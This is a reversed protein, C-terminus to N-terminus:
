AYIEGRRLIIHLFAPYFQHRVLYPYEELTHKLAIENKSSDIFRYSLNKCFFGVRSFSELIDSITHPHFRVPGIGRNVMTLFSERRFPKKINWQPTDSTMDWEGNKSFEPPTIVIHLECAKAGIQSTLEALRALDAIWNVVLNLVLIDFTQQPFVLKSDFISSTYFIHESEERNLAPAVDLGYADIGNERLYHVLEGQGCGLDLLRRGISAKSLESRLYPDLALARVIHGDGGNEGSSLIAYTGSCRRWLEEDTLRNIADIDSLEPPVELYDPNQRMKGNKIQHQILLSVCTGVLNNNLKIANETTMWTLESYGDFRQLDQEFGIADEIGVLAMELTYESRQRIATLLTKGNSANTNPYRHSIWKTINIKKSENQMIHKHFVEETVRVTPISWYDPYEKRKPSRKAFLTKGSYEYVLALAYVVKSM